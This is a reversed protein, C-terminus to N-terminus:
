MGKGLDKKVVEVIKLTPNLSASIQKELQCIHWTSASLDQWIELM